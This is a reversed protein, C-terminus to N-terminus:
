RCAAKPKRYNTLNRQFTNNVRCSSILPINVNLFFLKKLNQSTTTKRLVNLISGAVPFMRKTEVAGPPSCFHRQIFLALHPYASGVFLYSRYRRQQAQRSPSSSWWSSFTNNNLFELTGSPFHSFIFLIRASHKALYYCIRVDSLRILM